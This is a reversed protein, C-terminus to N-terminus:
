VHARGIKVRGQPQWLYFTFYSALVPLVCVIALLILTRRSRRRQGPVHSQLDAAANARHLSLSDNM